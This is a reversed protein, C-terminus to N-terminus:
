ALPGFLQIKYQNIYHSVALLIRTRAPHSALGDCPYAECFKIQWPPSGMALDLSLTKGLFVVCNGWGFFAQDM